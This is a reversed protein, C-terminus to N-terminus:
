QCGAVNSLIAATGSGAYGTSDVCWGTTDALPTSVAWSSASSGVSASGDDAACTAVGGFAAESIINRATQDNYFFSAGSTPCTAVAYDPGYHGNLTFYLEAQNRLSSLNSKIKANEAKDKALGLSGIVVAALIGIIAVVVLLEILTFGKESSNKQM